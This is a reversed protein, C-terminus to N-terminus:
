AFSSVLNIGQSIISVEVMEVRQTWISIQEELFKTQKIVYAYETIRPIKWLQTLRTRLRDNEESISRNEQEFRDIERQTEEHIYQLVDIKRKTENWAQETEQIIQKLEQVRRSSQHQVKRETLYLRNVRNAEEANSTRHTSILIVDINELNYRRNLEQLQLRLRQTSARCAGIVTIRSTIRKNIRKVVLEAPVTFRPSFFEEDGVAIRYRDVYRQVEHILRAQTSADSAAM